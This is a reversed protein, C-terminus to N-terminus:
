GAGPRIVGAYHSRLLPVAELARALLVSRPAVARGLPPALTVRRLSLHSGPFLSRLEKRGVGRVDANRPNDLFFDYWLICGGPALVRQMEAAVQRRLAPDLISTFMTVQMVVDFTKDGVPLRAGDAVVLHALGRM